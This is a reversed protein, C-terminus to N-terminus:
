PMSTKSRPRIVSGSLSRRLSRLTDLSPSDGACTGSTDHIGFVESVVLITPFRGGAEPRALYAPLSFGASPFHVTEVVLGAEDTHIPEATAGLGAAAYGAFFSAAV